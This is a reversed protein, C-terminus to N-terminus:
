KEDLVYTTPALLFGRLSYPQIILALTSISLQDKCKSIYGILLREFKVSPRPVNQCSKCPIVNIEEDNRLVVSLLM